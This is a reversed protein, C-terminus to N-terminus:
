DRHNSIDAVGCDDAEDLTQMCRTVGHASIPDQFGDAQVNGRESYRGRDELQGGGKEDHKIENAAMHGVRNSM